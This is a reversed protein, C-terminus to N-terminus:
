DVKAEKLYDAVQTLAEQCDEESGDLSRAAIAIGYTTQGVTIFGFQRTHWSGDPADSWGGKFPVNDLQGLGYRHEDVIKRMEVIVPDDAPVEALQYGYRAQGPLTWSTTGWAPEPTVTVGSKAIEESVLRGAEADSGICVWLQDTADNDSWEIAAETLGELASEGYPCHEQAVLAIPVKITSWAPMVGVSGATIDQTGDFLAVGVQVGQQKEIVAVKKDLDGLELHPGDPAASVPRLEPSPLEELRSCGGLLVGFAGALAVYRKKM